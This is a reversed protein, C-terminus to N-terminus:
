EADKKARKKTILLVGAGAVLVGGGVYFLTTGIGGTGPLTSGSKNEIKIAEMRHKTTENDVVTPDGSAGTVKYSLTLGSLADGATGTWAQNNATTATLIADYTGTLLNYGSPAKIEEIVYTEKDDLGKIIFTGDTTASEPLVAGAADTITGDSAVTPKTDTWGTLQGSANVVAYQTVNDKQRSLVFKADKLPTEVGSNKYYKNIDLEYTFVIVKDKPTEGTTPTGMGDWYSDNSYKLSVENEQGDLGVVADSTLKANYQVVIKTDATFTYTNNSGKIDNFVINFGNSGMAVEYGTLTTGATTFDYEATAGSTGEKPAYAQVTVAVKDKDTGEGGVLVPSITEDYTDVFEYYYHEYDGITSPMSGILKFGFEDGVTHDAVDNYGAGYEMGSYKDDEYVKKEVSPASSKANVKIESGNMAQLIYRTKAGDNVTDDAGTPSNAADKIFYYGDALNSFTTNSTPSIATATGLNKEVLEAFKQMKADDETYTALVDAVATASAKMDAAEYTISAFDSEFTTDGQLATILASADIGAGWNIETLKGNSLTASFLQYAAYTHTGQDSSPNNITISNEASATMSGMPVAACAVMMVAAAFAAVRRTRKTNKM